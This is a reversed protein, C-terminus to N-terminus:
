DVAAGDGGLAGAPVGRSWTTALVTGDCRILQGQGHPRGGLWAGEYRRGGGGGGGGGGGSGGGGGGGAAAAETFSGTGEPYGGRWQGTYLAGGHWEM